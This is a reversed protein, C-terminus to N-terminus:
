LEKDFIYYKSLKEDAKEKTFRWDIKCRQKNRRKNWAEVESKLYSINKMRRNTCENDMVGIEIEAVNLWSAHKPTYHFELKSLIREAEEKEFTDHFAKKSHTSLNDLVIRLKEAYPYFLVLERMFTAFDINTRRRTVKAIRKGHKPEVCVFINATGNRKYEYDYKQPKGAQMPIPPRSDEILQKPKEDVGIVPKRSDYPQMYLDLINYMRDRYQHTIKPICWM